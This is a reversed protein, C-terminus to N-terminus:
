KQAKDLYDRVIVTFDEAVNTWDRPQFDEYIKNVMQALEPRHEHCWKLRDIFADPSRIP